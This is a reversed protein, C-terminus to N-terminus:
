LEINTPRGGGEKRECGNKKWRLLNRRPIGYAESVQKVDQGNM